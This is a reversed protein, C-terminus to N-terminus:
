IYVVMEMEVLGRSCTFMKLFTHFFGSLFIGTGGKGEKKLEWNPIKNERGGCRESEIDIIPVLPFCM